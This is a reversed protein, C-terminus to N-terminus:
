PAREEERTISALVRNVQDYVPGDKRLRAGEAALRLHEIADELRGHNLLAIGLYYQVTYSDPELELAIEFHDLAEGDRGQEQLVCGILRHASPSRPDSELALRLQAEAEENRELLSLQYGVCSHLEATYDFREAIWPGPITGAAVLVAILTAAAAARSPKLRAASALAVAGAAAPAALVPIIPARYRASVFVLVVSAPYASLFIWVPVPIRRRHVVLGLVGLPLIVGFPFGFGGAKWVLASLLTSYRRAAYIDYTRPLERSSIMQFTKEAIGSAFSLPQGAAYEAVRDYFFRRYGAEGDYGALMPMRLLDRWRPGPRIMLTRDTDPNNGLYLNISGSRPLPSPLGTVRMSLISVPLLVAAIAVVALGARLAAERSANSTRWARAALWVTTVAVAPLFTARALISLGACIGYLAYSRSGSGNGISVAALVSAAALFAATGTALLESEFFLLPGYLATVTGAILGTREGFLRVGIRWSLIAACAGLLSQLIRAALISGGTVLYVASLLLPYLAGHWFLNPTLEGELALARAVEHYTASDVIPVGFTPSSACQALYVLRVTAALLFLAAGAAIVGARAHHAESSPQQM